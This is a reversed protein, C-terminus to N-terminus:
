PRADGHGERYPCAHGRGEGTPVHTDAGKERYPCAHGRGEGKLSMRTREGRGTLVHTDAGRERTDWAGECM